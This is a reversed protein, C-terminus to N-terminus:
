SCGSHAALSCAQAASGSPWVPRVTTSRSIGAMCHVLVNSGSDVAQAIFDVANPLERLLDTSPVDAVKITYQKIALLSRERGM